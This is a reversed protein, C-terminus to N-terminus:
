RAPKVPALTRYINDCAHNLIAFVDARRCIKDREWGARVVAIHKFLVVFKHLFSALTYVSAGAWYTLPMDLFLSLWREVIFSLVDLNQQELICAIIAQCFVQEVTTNDTYDPQITKKVITSAMGLLAHVNDKPLLCKCPNFKNLVQLFTFKTSSDRLSERTHSLNRLKWFGRRM